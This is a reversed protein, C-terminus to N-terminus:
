HVLKSFPSYLLLGNVLTFHALLLPHWPRALPHFTALGYLYARVEALDIDAAMGRMLLGSAVVALLLLLDAYDSPDSLRRVEPIVMRRCALAILCIALLM